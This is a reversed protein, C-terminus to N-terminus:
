KLEVPEYLYHGVIIVPAVITEILVIGWIVNGTVIKYKVRSDKVADEDFLGYPEYVKTGENFKFTKSSSCSSIYIVFILMSCFIIVKKM